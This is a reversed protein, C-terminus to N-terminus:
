WRVFPNLLRGIPGTLRLPADTVTLCYCDEGPDAVPRHDVAADTVAVDGRLFHGREDSFGGELVLTMETGSHTHRPMATGGRIRLLKVTAVGDIAIPLEDLGRMVPRWPQSELDGGIYGRLPAPVRDIAHRGPAAPKAAPVCPTPVEAIADVAKAALDRAGSERAADGADPAGSEGSEEADILAFCDALADGEMAAPEMADLMAGGMDEFAAYRTRAEPSLTLHSAVILSVAESCSGAAYDLLISDDLSHTPLSHSPGIPTQDAM